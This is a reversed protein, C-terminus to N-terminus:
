PFFASPSPNKVLLISEEAIGSGFRLVLAIDQETKSM